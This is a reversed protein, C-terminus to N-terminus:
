IKAGFRKPEYGIGNKFSEVISGAADASVREKPEAGRKEAFSGNLRLRIKAANVAQMEFKVRAVIDGEVPRRWRKENEDSKWWRVAKQIAWQPYGALADAWDEAEIARVGTPINKEYYPALLSAVRVMVWVNPAPQTLNAIALELVDKPADDQSRLLHRLRQVGMEMADLNTADMTALATAM